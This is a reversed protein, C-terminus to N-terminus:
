NPITTRRGCRDRALSMWFISTYCQVGSRDTVWVTGCPFCSWHLHCMLPRSSTLPLRCSITSELPVDQHSRKNQLFPLFLDWNCTDYQILKSKGKASLTCPLSYSSSFNRFICFCTSCCSDCRDFPAACACSDSAFICSNKLFHSSLLMELRCGGFHRGWLIKPRASCKKTRLRADWIGNGDPAVWYSTRRGSDTGPGCPVSRGRQVCRSALRPSAPGVRWRCM